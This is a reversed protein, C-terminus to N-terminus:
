KVCLYNKPLLISFNSGKYVTTVTSNACLSTGGLDTFEVIPMQAITSNCNYPSYTTVNYYNLYPWANSVTACQSLNQAALVSVAQSFVPSRFGPSGIYIGFNLHSWGAYLNLLLIASFIFVAYPIIQGGTFQLRGIALKLSSLADSSLIYAALLAMAGYVLYGLRIGGQAKNYVLLFGVLSLAMFVVLLLLKRNERFGNLSISSMTKRDILLIAIISASFLILPYWLITGLISAFGLAGIGQAQTESLSVIYSQVPNGFSVLNFLLWPMTVIIAVVIAKASKKRDGLLFLIPAIVLSDYKALGSLAVFIGSKYSKKVTLAISMVSLSLALIEGSNYLITIGVVFPSMLLAYTLLPDWDFSKAVVLSAILLAALLFILYALLGSGRFLMIFGAMILSPLPEWVQDFYFGKAISLSPTVKFALSSGLINVYATTKQSFVQSYSSLTATALTHANLYRSLFDWGVGSANYVSGIAAAAIVLLLLM